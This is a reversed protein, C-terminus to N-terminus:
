KRIDNKIIKEREEETFKCDADFDMIMHDDIKCSTRCFAKPTLKDCERCKM